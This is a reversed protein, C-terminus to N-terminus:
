DAMSSVSDPAAYTECIFCGCPSRGKEFIFGPHLQGDFDDGDFSVGM